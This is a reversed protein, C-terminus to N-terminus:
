TLLALLVSAHCIGFFLTKIKMRQLVSQGKHLLLSKSPIFRWQKMSPAWRQMMMDLWWQAERSLGETWEKTGDTQGYARQGSLWASPWTYATLFILPARFIPDPSPNWNVSWWKSHVLPRNVEWLRLNRIHSIPSLFPNHSNFSGRLHFPLGATLYCILLRAIVTLWYCDVGCCCLWKYPGQM